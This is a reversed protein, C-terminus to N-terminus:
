YVVKNIQILESKGPPHARTLDLPRPSAAGAASTSEFLRSKCLVLRSPRIGNGPVARPYYVQMRHKQKGQSLAGHLISLEPGGGTCGDFGHYDLFDRLDCHADSDGEFISTM